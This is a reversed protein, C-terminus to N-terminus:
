DDQGGFIEKQNQKKKELEELKVENWLTAARMNSVGMEDLAIRLVRAGIKDNLPCHYRQAQERFIKYLGKIDEDSDTYTWRMYETQDSMAMHFHAEAFFRRPAPIM